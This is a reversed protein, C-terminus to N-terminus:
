FASSGTTHTSGGGDLSRKRTKRRPGEALRKRMRVVQAAYWRGGRPSPVNRANLTAAAADAPLAVLEDLIPRFREARENGASLFRHTSLMRVGTSVERGDLVVCFAPGSEAPATLALVFTTPATCKFGSQAIMKQRCSDILALCVRGASVESGDLFRLSSGGIKAPTGLVFM